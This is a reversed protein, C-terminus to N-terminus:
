FWWGAPIPGVRSFCGNNSHANNKIFPQFQTHTHTHTMDMTLVKLFFDSNSKSSNLVPQM